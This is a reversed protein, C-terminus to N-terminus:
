LCITGSVALEANGSEYYGATERQCLVEKRWLCVKDSFVDAASSTQSWIKKRSVIKEIRKWIREPLTAHQHMWKANQEPSIDTWTCISALCTQIKKGEDNNEEDTAGMEKEKEEKEEREFNWIRRHLHVHTLLITLSPSAFSTSIERLVFQQDLQCSQNRCTKFWLLEKHIFM